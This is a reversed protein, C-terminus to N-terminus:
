DDILDLRQHNLMNWYMGKSAVLDDHAGQEIIRGKDM